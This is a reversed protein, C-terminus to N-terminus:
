VSVKVVHWARHSRPHKGIRGPVSQDTNGEPNRLGDAMRIYPNRLEIVEVERSAAQQQKQRRKVCTTVEMHGLSFGLRTPVRIEPPSRMTEVVQCGPTIHAEHRM